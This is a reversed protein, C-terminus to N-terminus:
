DCVIQVDVDAGLSNHVPCTRISALYKDRDEKSVSEPFSFVLRISAVRRPDAAMTKEVAIRTGAISQGRVEAMKGMITVACAALSSAFLDTPSFERGQGGNDTPLDTKVVVGSGGHTLRTQGDGLYECTMEMIIYETTSFPNNTDFLTTKYTFTPNLFCAHCCAPARGM